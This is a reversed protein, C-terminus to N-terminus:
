LTHSSESACGGRGAQIWLFFHVAPIRALGVDTFTTAM